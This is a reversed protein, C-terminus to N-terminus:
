SGIYLSPPESWPEKGALEELLALYNRLKLSTAHLAVLIDIADGTPRGKRQLKAILRKQRKIYRDSVAVYHKARRLDNDSHNRRM